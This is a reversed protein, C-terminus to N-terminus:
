VVVFISVLHLYTNTYWSIYFAQYPGTNTNVTTYQFHNYAKDVSTVLSQPTSYSGVGSTKNQPTSYNIIEAGNRPSVSIQTISAGTLDNSLGNINPAIVEILTGNKYDFYLSDYLTVVTNTDKVSYQPIHVTQGINDGTTIDSHFTVFGEKPCTLWNTLLIIVV